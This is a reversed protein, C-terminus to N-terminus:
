SVKFGEPRRVAFKESIKMGYIRNIRFKVIKQHSDSYEIVYYSDDNWLLAFPSFIYVKGNHKLEKKKNPTYSYYQFTIRKKSRIAQHLLDVTFYISENEAKWRHEVYFQRELIDGQPEGVFSSLKQILM